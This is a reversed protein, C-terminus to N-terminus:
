TTGSLKVWPELAWRWRQNMVPSLLPLTLEQSVKEAADSYSPRLLRLHQCPAV